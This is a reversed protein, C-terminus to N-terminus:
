VGHLVVFAHSVLILTMDLIRLSLRVGWGTSVGM